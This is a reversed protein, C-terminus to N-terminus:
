RQGLEALAILDALLGQPVSCDKPIEPRGECDYRKNGLIEKARQITESM